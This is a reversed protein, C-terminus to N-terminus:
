RSLGLYTQPDSVQRSMGPRSGVHWAVPLRHDMGLGAPVPSSLAHRALVPRAMVQASKVQGPDAKPTYRSWRHSSLGVMVLGALRRCAGTPRHTSSWSLDRCSPVQSAKGPSAQPPPVLRSKVSCAYVLCSMGHGPSTQPHYWSWVLTAGVRCARVHRAMPFNTPGLRATGRCSKVLGAKGRRTQGPPAM